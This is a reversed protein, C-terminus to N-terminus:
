QIYGLAKNEGFLAVSITEVLYTAMEADDDDISRAFRIGQDYKTGLLEAVMSGVSIFESGFSVSFDIAKVVVGPIVNEVVTVIIKLSDGQHIYKNLEEILIKNTSITM